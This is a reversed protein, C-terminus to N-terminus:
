ELYQNFWELSRRQVDRIDAPKRFEHGEGPYIVLETKVGLSKLAYWFEKSQPAPCEGDGAGVVILTPTKANKIFNIPSSKAYIAPADYILAGFYPIVWRPIEAQAVYSQWDAIGANAVAARFLHTQTVAWMTMYGGYSQGTIGIRDKDVPLTEEIKHVGTLIDGLDGYGFDRVDARQFAEGFGASGRFNPCLVFYGHTAFDLGCGATIMGSPGGHVEVIMPYRRQPDYNHPYTLWGQIEWNGNRWHLSEVRKDRARVDVNVHTIQKWAGIRGVWVEPARDLSELVVASTRGDRAMSIEAMSGGEPSFENGTWLQKIKGQLNIEALGIQGDVFERILLRNPSLWVLGGPGHASAKMHPTLDRAVGGQAPIVYVDGSNGGLNGSMLGGIFAIQKGDPSWRPATIQMQLNPKLIAEASGSEVNMIYLQAVYWNNDGRGQAATAVVEKGNPSWGYEYIYLNPPSAMRVHQSALDVLALRQEFPPKEGVVGLPAPIPSGPGPLRPPNSVFLFAVTRGDPSWQPDALVGRLNTLREAVGGTFNVVDLQRQEKGESHSLFALRHSDPSWAMETGSAVKRAPQSVIALDKVDIDSGITWAVYRGNPSIAVEGFGRDVSLPSIKKGWQARRSANFAWAPLGTLWAALLLFLAIGLSRASRNIRRDSMHGVTM